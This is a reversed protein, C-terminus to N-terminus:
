ADATRISIEHVVMGQMPEETLVMALWASVDLVPDKGVSSSAASMQITVEIM